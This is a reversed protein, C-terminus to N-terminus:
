YACLNPTIKHIKFQVSYEILGKDEYLKCGFHWYLKRYSLVCHITCKCHLLLEFSFTALFDHFESSRALQDM